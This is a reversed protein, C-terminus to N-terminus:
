YILSIEFSVTTQLSLQSGESNFVDFNGFQFDKLVKLLWCEPSLLLRHLSKAISHTSRKFGLLPRGKDTNSSCHMLTMLFRINM